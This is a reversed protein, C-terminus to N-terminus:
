SNTWYNKNDKLLHICKATLSKPHTQHSNLRMTGLDVTQSGNLKRIVSYKVLSTTNSPFRSKGHTSQKILLVPLSTQLMPSADSPRSEKQQGNLHHERFMVPSSPIIKQSLILSNLSKMSTTNKDQSYVKLYVAFTVKQVNVEQWLTVSQHGMLTRCPQKRVARNQKSTNRKGVTETSMSQM